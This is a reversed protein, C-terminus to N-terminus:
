RLVPREGGGLWPQERQPAWGKLARDVRERLLIVLAGRQFRPKQLKCTEHGRAALPRVASVPFSGRVGRVGCFRECLLGKRDGSRLGAGNRTPNATGIGCIRRKEGEGLPGPESESTQRWVQRARLRSGDRKMRKPLRDRRDVESSSRRRHRAEGLSMLRACARLPGGSAPELDIQATILVRRQCYRGAGDAAGGAAGGCSGGGPKAAVRNRRGAGRAQAAVSGHSGQRRRPRPQRAVAAAPGGVERSGTM